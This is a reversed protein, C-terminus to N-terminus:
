IEDNTSPAFRELLSHITRRSSGPLLTTALRTVGDGTDPFIACLLGGSNRDDELAVVKKELRETRTVSKGSRQEQHVLIVAIAPRHAAPIEIRM